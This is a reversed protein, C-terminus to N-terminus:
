ERKWIKIIPVSLSLSLSLIDSWVLQSDLYIVEVFMISWKRTHGRNLFFFSTHIGKNNWFRELGFLSRSIARSYQNKKTSYGFLFKFLRRNQQFFFFNVICFM